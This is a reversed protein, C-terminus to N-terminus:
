RSYRQILRMRTGGCLLDRRLDVREQKIDPIAATPGSTQFAIEAFGIAAIVLADGILRIIAIYRCM